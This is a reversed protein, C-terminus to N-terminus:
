TQAHASNKSEQNLADLARRAIKRISENHDSAALIELADVIRQDNIGSWEVENVASERIYAMPDQFRQLLSNVKDDTTTSLAAIVDRGRYTFRM